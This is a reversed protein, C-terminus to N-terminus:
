ENTLNKSTFFTHIKKPDAKVSGQAFGNRGGGRGSLAENMEKILGGIEQGRQMCAYRYVNGEESAEQTRTFVACFGSVVDAIKDCLTRGEEADLQDTIVLANEQGQFSEAWLRFYDEELRSLKAKLVILDEQQKKVVEPTKEEKTSLLVATQKNAQHNKNLFDLARKGCLLVLRTGEHFNHASVIKVLGVQASSKVHTGCCACTDAGPFRTIRM